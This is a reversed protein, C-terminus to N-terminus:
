CANSSTWILAQGKLAASFHAPYSASWSWSWKHIYYANYYMFFFVPMESCSRCISNIFWDKSTLPNLTRARSAHGPLRPFFACYTKFLILVFMNSLWPKVFRSQKCITYGVTQNVERQNQLIISSNRITTQNVKCIQGAELQFVSM